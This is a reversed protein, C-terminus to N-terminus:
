QVLIGEGASAFSTSGNYTMTSGTGCVLQPGSMSIAPKVSLSTLIGGGLNQYSVGGLGSQPKITGVCTPQDKEFNGQSTYINLKANSGEPCSIDVTGTSGGGNAQFVYTCGHMLIKAPLGGSATCGAYEPYITLSSSPGVLAGTFNATTCTITRVGMAIKHETTQGGAISTPYNGNSTVFQAGQAASALGVSAALCVALSATIAKVKRTM